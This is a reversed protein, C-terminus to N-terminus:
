LTATIVASCDSAQDHGSDCKHIVISVVELKSIV